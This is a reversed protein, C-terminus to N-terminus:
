IVFINKIRLIYFSMKYIFYKTNKTMENIYLLHTNFARESRYIKDHNEFVIDKVEIIIYYLYAKWKKRESKAFDIVNNIKSCLRSKPVNFIYYSDYLRYM